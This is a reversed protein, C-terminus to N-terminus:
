QKRSSQLDLTRATQRDTQRDEQRNTQSDPQGDTQRDTRRDTQRTEDLRAPEVFSHISQLLWARGNKLVVLLLLLIKLKVAHCAGRSDCACHGNRKTVWRGLLGNPRVDVRRSAWLGRHIEHLFLPFSRDHKKKQNETLHLFAHTCM